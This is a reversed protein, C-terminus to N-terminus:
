WRVAISPAGTPPIDLTQSLFEEWRIKGCRGEPCLHAGERFARAMKGPVPVEVVRKQRGVAELYSSALDAYTKLEPGGVDIRRSNRIPSSACHVVTAVGELARELGEGTLLDGKM